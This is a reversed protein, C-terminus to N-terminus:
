GVCQINAVPPLFITSHSGSNFHYSQYNYIKVYINLINTCITHDNKNWKCEKRKSNQYKRQIKNFQNNSHSKRKKQRQRKYIKKWKKRKNQNYKQKFKNKFKNRYRSITNYYHNMKRNKRNLKIIGISNNKLCFMWIKNIWVQLIKRFNL